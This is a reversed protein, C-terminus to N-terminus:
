EHNFLDNVSNNSHIRKIAEGILPAVSLVTLKFPLKAPDFGERLPISDTVVLEDLQSEEMMESYWWPQELDVNDLTLWDYYYGQISQSFLQSSEEMVLDYDDTGAQLVQLVESPFGAWDASGTIFNLKVNLRDEAAINRNYVADLVVDGNLEGLADYNQCNESGFSIIDLQTGNYNLDPSLTDPYNARTIEEEPQAEVSGAQAETGQSGQSADQDNNGGSESCATLLPTVMLAALLVAFLRKM